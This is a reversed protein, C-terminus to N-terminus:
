FFLVSWLSVTLDYYTVPSMNVKFDQVISFVLLISFKNITIAEFLQQDTRM